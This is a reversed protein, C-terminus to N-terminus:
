LRARTTQSEQVGGTTKMVMYGRTLSKEQRSANYVEFSLHEYMEDRQRWARVVIQDMVFVPKAFRGELHVLKLPRSTHYHQMAFRAAVGLTCLGHLLPKSRGGEEPQLMPISSSDVHISNSDGSALRYWLAENSSVQHESKFFFLRKEQPPPKEEFTLLSKDNSAYPIVQDSPFGLVLASSTVTCVPEDSETSISLRTDVFTGIPKPRISQFRGKMKLSCCSDIVPTPIDADHWTISQFTHLVPFDSPNESKPYLLSKPLIEMAKMMPPPFSPLLNGVTDSPIERAMFVLVLGFLPVTSFNIHEEFLYQLDDEYNAEVSGFGISLAYLIVDKASYSVRFGGIELPRSHTAQM